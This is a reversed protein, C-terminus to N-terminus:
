AAVQDDFEHYGQRGLRTHQHAGNSCIVELQMCQSRMAVGKQPDGKPILQKEWTSLLCRSPFSGPFAQLSGGSSPELWKLPRRDLAQKGLKGALPGTWSASGVKPPAWGTQPVTDRAKEAVVAPLQRWPSFAPEKPPGNPTCAAIPQRREAALEVEGQFPRGLIRMDQRARIQLESGQGGTQSDLCAVIMNINGPEERPASSVHNDPNFGRPLPGVPSRRTWAPASGRRLVM